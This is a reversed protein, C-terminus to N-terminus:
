AEKFEMFSRISYDARKVKEDWQAASHNDWVACTKMGASIGAELGPVVDEFVMCEKPEVGLRRAVELYCDPAPKCNVVEGSAVSAEILDTLGSADAFAGFLYRSNSTAVGLKIGRDKLYILLEKAGEKFKIKEAYFVYAMQNWEEVIEEVTGPFDYHEKTYRANETISLGEIEKQYTDPLEKGYKAFFEEDIGGWLGMSDILTGDMDFICAKIGEFIDLIKEM